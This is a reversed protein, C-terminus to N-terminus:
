GSEDTRLPIRDRTVLDRYGAYGDGALVAQVDELRVLTQTSYYGPVADPHRAGSPFVSRILVSWRDVPLSALNAAFRDFTRGRVLYYEVNSAYFARVVLGRRRSEEGVARLADPGALDGVVPVVRNAEQLRKLFLFDERTAMYSGARGELDTEALLQGYTPYWPSPPRGYSTFRLAPGLRIFAEHFRAVTALDEDSLPLGFTRVRTLVRERARAAAPGDPGGGGGGELADLLARVGEETWGDRGAPAPPVDRGFLLALYEMRTDSEHFLAKLLLHHLLNDRRIDVMFALAPRQVAIYSFNQDPGVGVYAGGRVGLRRMPGLVHLYSTENSILNDTDFYGGPESLSTVLRVWQTDPIPTLDRVVAPEPVPGAEPLPGPDGCAVGTLVGLLLAFRVGGTTREHRRDMLSAM